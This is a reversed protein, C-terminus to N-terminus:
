LIEIALLYATCMFGMRLLFNKERKKQIKLAHQLLLMLLAYNPGLLLLLMLIINKVLTSLRPFGRSLERVVGQIIM